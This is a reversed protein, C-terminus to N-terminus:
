PIVKRITTDVKDYVTKIPACASVVWVTLALILVIFTFGGSAWFFLALLKLSKM